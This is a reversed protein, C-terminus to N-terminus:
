NKLLVIQISVNQTTQITFEQPAATNATTQVTGHTRARFDARSAHRPAFIQKPAYRLPPRFNTQPRVQPAPREDQQSERREERKISITHTPTNTRETQNPREQHHTFYM